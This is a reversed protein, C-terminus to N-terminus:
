RAPAQYTDSVETWGAGDTGRTTPFETEAMATVGRLYGTVGPQDLPVRKGQADRWHMEVLVSRRPVAVGKARYSAAFRYYKGGTVPFSKKWYGALGDRKDARIVFCGKGDPGGAPEYAFEPRIEDRPAEGTWGDPAPEAARPPADGAASRWSWATLAAGAVAAALFCGVLNRRTVTGLVKMEAGGTPLGEGSPPRESRATGSSERPAHSCPRG